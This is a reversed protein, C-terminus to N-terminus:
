LSISRLRELCVYRDTQSVLDSAISYLNAVLVGNGGGVVVFLPGILISEVRIISPLGIITLEWILSLSTGIM